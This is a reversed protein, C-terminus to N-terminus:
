LVPGWDIDSLITRLPRGQIMWFNLLDDLTSFVLDIDSPSDSATVYYKGDPSCISYDQGNYSFEPENCMMMEMFQKVTM